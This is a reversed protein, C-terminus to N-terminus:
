NILYQGFLTQFFYKGCRIVKDWIVRAEKVAVRLPYNGKCRKASQFLVWHVGYVLPYNEVPKLEQNYNDIACLNFHKLFIRGCKQLDIGVVRIHVVSYENSQLQAAWRLFLITKTRNTCVTCRPIFRRNNSM